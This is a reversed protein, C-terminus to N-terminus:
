NADTAGPPAGPAADAAPRMIEHTMTGDPGLVTAVAGGGLLTRMFDPGGPAAAGQRASLRAANLEEALGPGSIEEFQVEVRRRHANESELRVEAARAAEAAEAAAAADAEPDAEPGAEAEADEAEEPQRQKKELEQFNKDVQQFLTRLKPNTAQQSALKRYHTVIRRFQSTIKPSTGEQKSVDLVFNEMIITPNGSAIYDKHYGDFNGELLGVSDRIRAFAEECRPIQKKVDDLSMMVINVFEKVDIDPASVAEYVDHSTAYLKHIVTLVFRKDDATLLDSIYIQKFNVAPLEPLPAFSLGASRTLFRDQLADINEIAAKHTTLNNCAVIITSVLASDKVDKYVTAFAEYQEKTVAERVFEGHPGRLDPARFTAAAKARLDDVYHALHALEAPFRAMAASDRLADLVRLFRSCNEAIRVYKPHVIDLNLDVAEGTGLVGHFMDIVDKNNITAQVVKSKIKGPM